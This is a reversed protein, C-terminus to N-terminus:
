ATERGRKFAERERELVDIKKGRSKVSAHGVKYILPLPPPSPPPGKRFSKGKRRERIGFIALPSPSFLFISPFLLIKHWPLLPSEPFPTLIAPQCVSLLLVRYENEPPISRELIPLYREKKTGQFQPQSRFLSFCTKKRAPGGM